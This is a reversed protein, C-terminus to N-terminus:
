GPERDECPGFTRHTAATRLRAQVLDFTRFDRFLVASGAIARENRLDKSIRSNSRVASSVPTSLFRDVSYLHKRFPQDHQPSEALGPGRSEQGDASLLRAKVGKLSPRDLAKQQSWLPRNGSRETLGMTM